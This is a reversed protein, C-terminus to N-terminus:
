AAKSVDDEGSEKKAKMAQLKEALSKNGVRISTVQKAITSGSDDRYKETRKGIGEKGDGTELSKQNDNKEGKEKEEGNEKSTPQPFKEPSMIVSLIGGIM